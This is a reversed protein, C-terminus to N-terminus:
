ETPAPARLSPGTKIDASLLATLMRLHEGLKPYDRAPKGDLDLVANHLIGVYGGVWGLDHFSPHGSSTEEKRAVVTWSSGMGIELQDPSHNRWVASKKTGIVYIEFKNGSGHVTKSISALARTGTAFEMQLHVHTDRHPADANAYSLWLSTAVPDTGLVYIAADAWHVGLDLLTDFPGNLAPDSKWGGGAKEGTAEQAASSQWYRGEVAIVAGLDGNVVMRKLTRVGWSQRYVHCVATPTKVSRASEIETLSVCAPKEMVILKFGAADAELLSRAHLGTPNAICIVPNPVDLNLKNFPLGRPIKVPATPVIEPQAVALIAWAQSLAQAANGSGLIFPNVQM